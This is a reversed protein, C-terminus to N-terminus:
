KFWLLTTRANRFIFMCLLYDQKYHFIFSNDELLFCRWIRKNSEHNWEYQMIYIRKSTILELKLLWKLLNQRYIWISIVIRVWCNLKFDKFMNFKQRWTMENKFSCVFFKFVDIPFIFSIRNWFTFTLEFIDLCIKNKM